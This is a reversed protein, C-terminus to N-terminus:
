FLNVFINLILFFFKWQTGKEPLSEEEIVPNKDFYEFVPQNDNVNKISIRVTATDDFVGDFARVTLNYQTIKEYDLPMNVRIKGTTNEIFFSNDVNGHVISYTVPSASDKDTAKVETVLSNINTDEPIANAVYESQTFYPPNDNKDAIEIRFNQEGRNHEGTKFLASPSNDTAIVKVTYTNETERDFAQLTTINGTYRDITFINGYNGLEYTVQRLSFKQLFNAFLKQLM